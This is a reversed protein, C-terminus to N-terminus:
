SECFESPSLCGLTPWLWVLAPGPDQPQQPGSGPTGARGQPDPEQGSPSPSSPSHGSQRSKPPACSPSHPSLQAQGPTPSPFHGPSLAEHGSSPTPSPPAALAWLLDLSPDVGPSPVSDLATSPSAAVAPPGGLATRSTPLHGRLCTTPPPSPGSTSPPPGLPAALRHPHQCASSWCRPLPAAPM